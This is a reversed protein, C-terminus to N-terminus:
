LRAENLIYLDVSPETQHVWNEKKTSVFFNFAASETTKDKKDFRGRWPIEM